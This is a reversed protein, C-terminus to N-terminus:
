GRLGYVVGRTAERRKSGLFSLDARTARPLTASKSVFRFPLM